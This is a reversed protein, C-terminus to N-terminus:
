DMTVKFGLVLTKYLGHSAELVLVLGEVVLDTRLSFLDGLQLGYLGLHLALDTVVVLLDRTELSLDVDLHPLHLVELPLERAGLVLEVHGLVLRLLEHLVKGLVLELEIDKIGLYSPKLVLFLV